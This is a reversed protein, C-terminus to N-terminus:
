NKIGKKQTSVLNQVSTASAPSSFLCLHHKNIALKISNSSHMIIHWMGHLTLLM